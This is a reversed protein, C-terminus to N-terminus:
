GGKGNGEETPGPTPRQHFVLYRRTWDVCAKETRLSPSMVTIYDVGHVVRAALLPQACRYEDAPEVDSNTDYGACKGPRSRGILHSKDPAQGGKDDTCHRKRGVGRILM